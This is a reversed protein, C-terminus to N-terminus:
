PFYVHGSHIVRAGSVYRNSIWAVRKRYRDDDMEDIAVHPHLIHEQMVFELSDSGDLGKFKGLSEILEDDDRRSLYLNQSADRLRQGEITKLPLIVEENEYASCRYFEIVSGKFPRKLENEL